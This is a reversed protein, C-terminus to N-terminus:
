AKIGAKDGISWGNVSKGIAVVEGAGEHGGIVPFVSLMPFDGLYGHLDSHCIGSYRIQILIEDDAPKPIPVERIM